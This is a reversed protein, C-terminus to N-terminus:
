GKFAETSSLYDIEAKTSTRGLISNRHPFRGFKKIIDRHHKAFRLNSELQARQYFQVSLEQDELNESHMLPMYFFSLMSNPLQQDFNKAIAHHTVRIADSETAFSKATGRFMNLPFQDLVIILALSSEADNRWDDLEGAAASEWLEEYKSKILLDFENTSTFWLNKSSESYWFELVEQPSIPTM